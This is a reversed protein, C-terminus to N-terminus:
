LCIWSNLESSLESTITEIGLVRMCMYIYMNARNCLPVYVDAFSLYKLFCMNCLRTLPRFSYFVLNFDLTVIVHESLKLCLDIEVDRFFWRAHKERTWIFRRESDSNGHITEFRLLKFQRNRYFTYKLLSFNQHITKM